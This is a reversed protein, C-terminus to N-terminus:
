TDKIEKLHVLDFYDGFYTEEYKKLNHAIGDYITNCIICVLIIEDYSNVCTYTKNSYSVVWFLEFTYEYEFPNVNIIYLKCM